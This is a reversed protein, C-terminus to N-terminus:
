SKELTFQNVDIYGTRFSKACGTLYKMYRQYVEESQIAIAEDRHAELAEAWLDLTRAYHPQLSQRRTLRFGAKSSHEEVKEIPPLRGGPFIETLIFKIFRAMEFTLPMGREIMQPGTLATITHLLMVGDGPLVSDAMTFFDDYRDHGFHEFAGISVIRDVPEKFQEWGNLLVRKSRPSDIHAFLQEVHAAQNKSLTLGVVNVDYTEIARRMTAGWGCGIDLLTMGPQLGLKGLALDIKALQAEELTMDEGEFYACSYTQTPDLFLRFFDDSLDYHAQVNAFHPALNKAM